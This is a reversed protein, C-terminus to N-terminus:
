MGGLPSDLDNGAMLGQRVREEEGDKKSGGSPEQREVATRSRKKEAEEAKKEQKRTNILGNVKECADKLPVQEGKGAGAEIINMVMERYEESEELMPYEDKAEQIETKVASRVETAEQYIERARKTALNNSKELILKAFQDPTMNDFDVDELQEALEDVAEKDTKSGEVKEKGERISEGTKGLTKELERYSKIIDEKSKGQFKEPIEIDEEAPEETGDDSIDAEEDEVPAEEETGEVEKTEEESANDTETDELNESNRSFGM